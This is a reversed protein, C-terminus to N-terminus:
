SRAIAHISYGGVRSVGRSISSSFLKRASAVATKFVFYRDGDGMERRGGASRMGAQESLAVARAM